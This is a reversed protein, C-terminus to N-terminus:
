RMNLRYKVRFMTLVAPQMLHIRVYTCTQELEAQIIQTKKTLM